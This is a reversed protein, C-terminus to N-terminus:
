LAAMEKLFRTRRWQSVESLSYRLLERLPSPNAALVHMPRSAWPETDQQIMDMVIRQQAPVAPLKWSASSSLCKTLSFRNSLKILYKILNLSLWCHCQLLQLQVCTLEPTAVFLHRATHRSQV